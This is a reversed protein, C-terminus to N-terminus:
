AEFTPQGDRVRDGVVLGIPMNSAIVKWVISSERLAAKWWAMQDLGLLVANGGDSVQRNSTNPGRYSRLDIVFM